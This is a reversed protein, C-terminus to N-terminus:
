AATSPTPAKHPFNGGGSGGAQSGLGGLGALSQLYIRPFASAVQPLPPTSPLKMTSSGVGLCLKGLGKEM